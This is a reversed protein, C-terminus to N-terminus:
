ARQCHQATAINRPVRAPPSLLSRPAAISVALPTRPYVVYVNSQPVSAQAILQQPQQHQPCPELPRRFLTHAQTRCTRKLSSIM